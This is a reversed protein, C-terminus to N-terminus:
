VGSQWAGKLTAGRQDCRSTRQRYPKIRGIRIWGIVRGRRRPEHDFLTKPQLTIEETHTDDPRIVYILRSVRLQSYKLLEAYNLKKV